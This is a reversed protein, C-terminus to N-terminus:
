NTTAAVTITGWVDTLNTTEPRLVDIRTRMTMNIQDQATVATKDAAFVQDAAQDNYNITLTLVNGKGGNSGATGTVQALVEVYNTNYAATTETLRFLTVNSTTFDWFGNAFGNTTVTYGTGSRQSTTADISLTGVGNNLMNTWSSEKSNDTGSVTTLILNIRGGSNFFYRMQDSSAFTVTRVQQFTTPTTSNWTGDLNSGGTTTGRTGNFNLRNTYATSINTSLTSLVAIVNGATPATIGSGSGAQHNLISNLRAVLTSWSTATVTAGAAVATLTTTQGYGLDGNGVGWVTNINAVGNNGTGAANGTAFINYEDDLILDGTTYAM